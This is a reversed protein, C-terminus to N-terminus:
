RQANIVTIVFLNCHNLDDTDMQKKMEASIQTNTETGMQTHRETSM